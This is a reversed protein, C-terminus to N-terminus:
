MLPTSVHSRVNAISAFGRAILWVGFTLEFLGGAIAAVLAAGAVGFLELLNAAAFCKDGIFGWAAQSRRLNGALRHNAGQHEPPLPPM